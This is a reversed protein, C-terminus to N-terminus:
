DLAWRSPFGLPCDAKSEWCYYRPPPKHCDSCPDDLEPMYMDPIEYADKRSEQRLYQKWRQDRWAQDNSPSVQDAVLLCLEGINYLVQAILRKIV